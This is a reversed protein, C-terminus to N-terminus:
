DHRRDKESIADHRIIHVDSGYIENIMEGSIECTPHGVVRRNVCAVNKVYRSVFGLDHTVLVITMKKNLQDLLDYLETEVAIDVNATPEDLLLLEPGSVLARAILVRQSQGGSLESFPRHRIDYLEVRKLAEGAAERDANTHFGFHMGTGLRGMLVVDLVSVPFLPDLSTHQPMYGIRPRAKVPSDGFVKVSGRTPKILGLILRLITTKGGANPGVISLFDRENVLLNVDELVPSGNYSFWVNELEIVANM